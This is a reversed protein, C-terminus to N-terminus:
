TSSRSPRGRTSTPRGGASAWSSRTAARSGNGDVTVLDSPRRTRYYFSSGRPRRGRPVYPVAQGGRAPVPFGAQRARLTGGPVPQEGAHRDARGQLNALPRRRGVPRPLAEEAVFPGANRGWKEKQSQFYSFSGRLAPALQAHTKFSGNQLRTRDELGTMQRIRIDQTGWAGWFWWRDRLVPGGVDAGWETLQDTRAGESANSALDDALEPPTNHSQMWPLHTPDEIYGKAQGRFANTGNKLMFNLQVGGTASKPDAGGTTVSMEEFMDFDFYFPSALAAMDTFTIGDMSWVTQTPMAGKGLFGSQQGSDSGGVDVRDVVIGPVSRLIVWPDRATPISELEAAGVSVTTTQKKHDIMPVAATVVVDERGGAVALTVPVSVSAGAGVIIDGSKWRTFGELEVALVYSGVPLNLFRAEGRADSVASQPLQGTLTLTAGPLRSRTTDLVAVEIRGTHVQAAAVTSLGLALIAHAALTGLARRHFRPLM